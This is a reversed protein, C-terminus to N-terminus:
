VNAMHVVTVGTNADEAEFAAVYRNGRLAERTAERLRGSGKGHIVRIIPVSALYAADLRRELAELADDVVLGRLDLVLPPPGGMQGDGKNMTSIREMDRAPKDIAHQLEDIKARVRLRGVQVEVQDSRLDTIVGEARITKLLVQDGLNFTEPVRDAPPPLEFEQVEEAAEKLSEIVELPQGAARLKRKLSAIEDRITDLEDASANRAQDLIARREDEIGTLRQQLTEQLHQAIRNSEQAQGLEERTTKRQRQIVDLLDDAQLDSPAIQSRARAVVGEDLGLREAIALANSRGPLGVILHFTPQLNELDFEVSANLVGPTTHAFTKLVPFHTAVFTTINKDLFEMLLAKALAAGEQPDTGSGLEDLLVLAHSDASKLISIINAIHASFTSLSQEISQEDGIDAYVGSFVSLASDPLAPIHLGSQAMLVCLGVTKLAVTKGGTNPGTIVLAYILEELVVDIPVVTEPDLLAHRASRLRIRSGSHAGSEESPWPIMTPESAGLEDAYGAKAFMFDIAALGEVSRILDAAQDAILASLERLIRRMEDREALELERCENNLDVVTLPEVFLTAGSSSRDHIVAKIRGKFEARLPIVFRGDRQTVIPEQLIPIIKPDSVLRDMKSVLRARASGLDRRIEALNKSANDKINGRDDLVKSIASVLGTIPPIAAARQALHPLEEVYDALKRKINRAAILTSRIDLFDDVELTSDHQAAQVLDRIDHAGGITAGPNKTLFLRAETTGKQTELVEDFDTSPRLQLALEKSASFAAFGALKALIARFELRDM